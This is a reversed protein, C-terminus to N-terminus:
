AWYNRRAWSGPYLRAETPEDYTERSASGDTNAWWVKGHGGLTAEFNVRTRMGGALPQTMRPLAARPLAATLVFGQGDDDLRHSLRTM